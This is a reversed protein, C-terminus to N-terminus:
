PFFVITADPRSPFAHVGLMTQGIEKLLQPAQPIATSDGPLVLMSNPPSGALGILLGELQRGFGFWLSDHMNLGWRYNPQGAYGGFWPRPIAITCSSDFVDIPGRYGPCRFTYDATVSGVHIGYDVDDIQFDWRVRL